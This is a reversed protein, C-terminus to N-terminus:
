RPGKEAAIARAEAFRALWDLYALAEAQARRLQTATAANCFRAVIEGNGRPVLGRDDLYKTVADHVPGNKKGEGSDRKANLFALAPLLGSTLIRSSTKKCATAFDEFPSADKLALAELAARARIQEPTQRM